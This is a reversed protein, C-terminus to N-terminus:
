LFLNRKEGKRYTILKQIKYAKGRHELLASGEEDARRLIRNIKMYLTVYKKWFGFPNM